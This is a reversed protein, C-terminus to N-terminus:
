NGCQRRTQVPKSPNGRVQELPHDKTWHYYSRHRQYFTHMNSNDINRSSSEAAEPGVTLFEDYLPGFLLDLEQQSPATTDASPSVNPALKSSSLENNHDHTKLETSNHVSTQQLLPVPGFNDYDSVKQRQPAPSSTNNEVSAMSFEKIEDFNIHISEVILRTRKNYVRYGQAQLNLQIMKLFYKLVKPTEDKSRLFYTWTYRSYDDFIVLIYKKESISEIRMPGCLDMHFLGKSSPVTKTKFTSRMAKSLECSSCLQDKVYKLKPLGNMIDKKSLLNITDFNLYSLRQHWFWAQTPSAKALFCIPTPSSTELDLILAFQDNEFRVTGLYKEIFNCLLKLNRTMHKTCGSEVIFLIIQMIKDKMQTSKLRPMSVSTEHTVGTSTSVRPNTNRSTQPLQPARAQTTSTDIQYMGPKIVNTNRVAQNRNQPLTQTTVPKSLSESMNTKTVSNTKSFDKRELSDSFTTPKGLVSPKPIKLANPQRIVFPRDFMTEVFKGKCKEILKKLESIAINKEQLQAKLDQIKFYQEHEKLFVTSENEKCFMVDKSVCEQFLLDYINSFDAKDSELEDIEKELSQVYQLDEKIDNEKQALLGLTEKLKRELKDNEITHDKFTMYKALEVEKDHLAVLYRDRPRNSKELSSKCEALASKCEQLKHSLSTNAKKLQKHIKKNEDTDRKLNAILNALVVREDDCEKANKDAQNDNDCVNSSDPIVNSDVKEVVCTNNISVPQEFHHMYHAELEQEDLEEDTDDLWDTQEACLPVGKEAQKCLLMNEKHYNYDKARKPKRCEKAFHGFEKCNFCQIGTKQVVHSGITERAGVVTMTRQNGFQGTQNDNKYKPSTNKNKSKSSTILNNNIPKYIKKFYKAILALNKQMDKDRQAQEPDSDEESTSESPPIIPKAIEKGKNRTTAHSRTLPSTKAPPAYSRHSKPAQYYTDLYQQAVAVLALPNANRAIKEDRIKM